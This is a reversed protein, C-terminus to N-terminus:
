DLDKAYLYIKDIFNDNDKQMLNLLANTERSGSPGIILMRYPWKKNDNKKTIVVLNFM